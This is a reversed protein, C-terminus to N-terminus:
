QGPRPSAFPDPQKAQPPTLSPVDPQAQGTLQMVLRDFSRTRGGQHPTLSLAGQASQSNSHRSASRAEHSGRSRSPHHKAAGPLAVDQAPLPPLKAAPAQPASSTTSNSGTAPVSATQVPPDEIPTPATERQKPPAEAVTARQAITAASLEGFSSSNPVGLERSIPPAERSTRLANGYALPSAARAGSDVITEKAPQALLLFGTGFFVGITAIAVLGDLVLYVLSGARVSNSLVAPVRRRHKAEPSPELPRSASQWGLEPEAVAPRPREDLPPIALTDDHM